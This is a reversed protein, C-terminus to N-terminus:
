VFVDIQIRQSGTPHALGFCLPIPHEIAVGARVTMRGVIAEATEDIDLPLGPVTRRSLIHPGHGVVHAIREDALITPEAGVMPLVRTLEEIESM